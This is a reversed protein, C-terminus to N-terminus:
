CNMHFGFLLPNVRWELNASCGKCSSLPNAPCQSVVTLLAEQNCLNEAIQQKDPNLRRFTM